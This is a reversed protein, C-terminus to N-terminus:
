LCLCRQLFNRYLTNSTKWNRYKGYLVGLTVTDRSGNNGFQLRTAVQWPGLGPGPSFFPSQIWGTGSVRRRVETGSVGRDM